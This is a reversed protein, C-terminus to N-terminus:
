RVDISQIIRLGEERETETKSDIWFTLRTTGTTGLGSFHVAIVYPQDQSPNEFRVVKAARCRIGLREERYNNQSSYSELPDSYSGYDFFVRSDSSRYEGILSDIPQVSQEVFGSPLLFSLTDGAQIETWGEPIAFLAACAGPANTQPLTSSDQGSPRSATPANGCALVNLTVLLSFLLTKM